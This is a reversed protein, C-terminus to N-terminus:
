ADTDTESLSLRVILPRHDSGIGPGVRVSGELGKIFAHDIPLGVFPIPSLWTTALGYHLRKLNQRELPAFADSWPVTNFDGIALVPEGEPVSAATSRIEEARRMRGSPKLPMTTHLALITIARGEKSIEIRAPTRETDYLLRCSATPDRTLVHIPRGQCPAHWGDPIPAKLPTEGFVVIEAKEVQALAIARDYAGHRKLVNAWVVTMDHRPLPEGAEFAPLLRVTFGLAVVLGAVGWVPEGLIFLLGGVLLLALITQPWVSRLAETVQSWNGPLGALLAAIGLAAAIRLLAALDPLPTKRSPRSALRAFLFAPSSTRRSEQNTM